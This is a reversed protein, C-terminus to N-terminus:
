FKFWLSVHSLVYRGTKKLYKLYLIRVHLPEM